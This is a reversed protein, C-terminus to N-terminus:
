PCMGKKAIRAKLAEADKQAYWHQNFPKDNVTVQWLDSQTHKVVRCSEVLSAIERSNNVTPANQSSGGACGVLVAALLLAGGVSKKM